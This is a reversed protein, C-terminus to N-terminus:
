RLCERLKRLMNGYMVAEIDAEDYRRARLVDAITILDAVTDIEDPISAAGFGGDFDSGLGVHAASGTVQCVHDIADAIVQISVTRKPDGSSWKESLFRNYPVIGMVGDREALRQIMPDSLNRDIDRFRRPNSHSAIIVGDYLELAELYAEEALHSLDLVANFDRMIELLDRGLPELRGPKGTGAAYRTEGWAPGVIRVGREYWEEFQRPEIIPDAGEMLLVLGQKRDRVDVGDEWSALVEDLEARNRVLMVGATEDTLRLYYDYQKMALDHAQRPTAYTEEPFGSASAGAPSVFITAFVLAVRGAIAEPLGVTAAPPRREYQAEIQRKRLASIKYDRGFTLANYAIDQHADLVFLPTTANTTM